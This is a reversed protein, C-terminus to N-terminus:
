RCFIIFIFQDEIKLSMHRLKEPNGKTVLTINM